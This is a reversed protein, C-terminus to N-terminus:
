SDLILPCWHRSILLMLRRSLLGPVWGAWGRLLLVPAAAGGLRGSSLGKRGRSCGGAGRSRQVASTRSSGLVGTLLLPARGGPALGPRPVSGGAGLGPSLRSRVRSGVVPGLVALANGPAKGQTGADWEGHQSFMELVGMVKLFLVLCCGQRYSFDAIIVSFKYQVGFCVKAGM